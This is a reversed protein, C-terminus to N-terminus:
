QNHGNPRKPTIGVFVESKVWPDVWNPPLQAENLLAGSWTEIVLNHKVAKKGFVHNDTTLRDILLRKNLLLTLQNEAEQHTTILGLTGEKNNLLCGCQLKWILYAGKTILIKLLQSAGQRQDGGESFLGTLPAAM